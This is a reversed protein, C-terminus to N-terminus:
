DSLWDPMELPFLIRVHTLDKLADDKRGVLGPMPQWDGGNLRVDVIFMDLLQETTKGSVSQKYYVPRLFYRFLPAVGETSPDTVSPPGVVMWQTLLRAYIMEPSMGHNDPLIQFGGISGVPSTSICIVGTHNARIRGVGTYLSGGFRGTGFIPKLVQGIIKSDGDPYTVTIFGGFRNEFVIEAPYRVPREVVITLRDGNEPYYMEPLPKPAGGDRELLVRNGVFPSEAGGFFREGAPIDTIMSASKAYYSHYNEPQEMFDAPLISLMVGRDANQRVKIHVANVATAAVRGRPAWGSATYGKKNLLVIPVQVRGYETWNEGSDRSIGIEGDFTNEFRIRFLEELAPDNEGAVVETPGRQDEIVGRATQAAACMLLVCMLGPLFIKM